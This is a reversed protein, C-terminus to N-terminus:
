TGTYPPWRRVDYAVHNWYAFRIPYTHIFNGDGHEDDRLSLDSARTYRKILFERHEPPCDEPGIEGFWSVIKQTAEEDNSWLWEFASCKRVAYHPAWGELFEEFLEYDGYGEDEEDDEKLIKEAKLKEWVDRAMVRWSDRIDELEEKAEEYTRFIRDAENELEVSWINAKDWENTETCILMYVWYDKAM